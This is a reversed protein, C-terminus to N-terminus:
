SPCQRATLIPANSERYESIEVAGVSNFLNAAIDNPVVQSLPSLPRNSDACRVSIAFNWFYISAGGRTRVIVQLKPDGEPRWGFVSVHGAFTIKVETPAESRLFAVSMDTLGFRRDKPSRRAHWVLQQGKQATEKLAGTTSLVEFVASQEISVANPAPQGPVAPQAHASRALFATLAILAIRRLLDTCMDSGCRRSQLLDGPARDAPGDEEHCGRQIFVISQWTLGPV